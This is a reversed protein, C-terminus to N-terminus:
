RECRAAGSAAAPLQRTMHMGDAPVTLWLAGNGGSPYHGALPVEILWRSGLNSLVQAHASGWEAGECDVPKGAKAAGLASAILLCTSRPMRLEIVKSSRIGALEAVKIPFMSPKGMLVPLSFALAPFLSTAILVCGWVPIRGLLASAMVVGFWLAVLLALQWWTGGQGPWLLMLLAGVPLVSWFCVWLMHPLRKWWAARMGKIARESWVWAMAGVLVLCIGILAMAGAYPRCEWWALVGLWLLFFLGVGLFQLAPLAVASARPLLQGDAEADPSLGSTRFAWLPGVLSMVVWLCFAFALMAVFVSAGLISPIEAPMYDISRFYFALLAVGVGTGIAGLGVWPVAALQQLLLLATEMPDIPPAVDSSEKLNSAEKDVAANM